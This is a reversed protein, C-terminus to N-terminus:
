WRLWPFYYLLPVRVSYNIRNHTVVASSILTAVYKTKISCNKKKNLSMDAPLFKM